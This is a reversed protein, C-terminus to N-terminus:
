KESRLNASLTQLLDKRHKFSELIGELTDRRYEAEIVKNVAVIYKPDKEVAEKSGSISYGGNILNEVRIAKMKKRSLESKKADRVLAKHVRTLFGYVRPHDMVESTISDEDILLEKNLNIKVTEEGAVIKYRMWKSEEIFDVLRGM